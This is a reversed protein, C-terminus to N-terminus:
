YDGPCGLLAGGHTMHEEVERGVEAEEREIVGNERKM